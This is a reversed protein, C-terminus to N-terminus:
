QFYCPGLSRVNEMNDSSVDLHNVDRKIQM